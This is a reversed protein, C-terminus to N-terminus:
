TRMERMLEFLDDLIRGLTEYLAKRRNEFRHIIDKMGEKTVSQGQQSKLMYAKDKCLRLFQLSQLDEAAGMMHCIDLVLGFNHRRHLVGMHPDLDAEILSGIIMERFLNSVVGNVIKWSEQGGKIYADIFRQYDSERFGKSTFVAAAGKSLRKMTELQLLRREAFIWNKVRQINNETELFIKQEEYHRPLNHNYPITVATEEGRMNMFTVPIDNETFLTIAGAELKLNGIIVVRGILRAPIRRGAKGEQRIWISPGDRLIELGRSENLYLSKEM